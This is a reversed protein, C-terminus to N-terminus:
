DKLINYLRQLVIDINNDPQINLGLQKFIKDEAQITENTFQEPAEITIYKFLGYEADVTLYQNMLYLSNENFLKRHRALSEIIYFMPVSFSENFYLVDEPCNKLDIVILRTNAHSTFYLVKSKIKQCDTNDMVISLRPNYKTLVYNCEDTYTSYWIPYSLVTMANELKETFDNLDRTIEINDEFIYIFGDFKLEEKFYRIVKNKIQSRSCKEVQIPIIKINEPQSVMDEPKIHTSFLYVEDTIKSSDLKGIMNFVIPFRNQKYNIIAIKRNNM